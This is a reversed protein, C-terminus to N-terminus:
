NNKGNNYEEMFDNYPIFLMANDYGLDYTIIWGGYIRTILSNSYNWTTLIKRPKSFIHYDTEMIDGIKMNVFTELERQKQVKIESQKQEEEENTNVKVIKYSCSTFMFLLGLLIFLIKKM